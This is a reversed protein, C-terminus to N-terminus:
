ATKVDTPNYGEPIGKRQKEWEEQDESIDTKDTHKGENQITRQRKFTLTLSEKVFYLTKKLELMFHPNRKHAKKWFPKFTSEM